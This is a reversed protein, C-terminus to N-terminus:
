RQAFNLISSENEELVKKELNEQQDSQEKQLRYASEKHDLLRKRITWM